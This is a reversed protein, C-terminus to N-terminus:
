LLNKGAAMPTPTKPLYFKLPSSASTLDALTINALASYLIDSVMQWQTRLQCDSEIQCIHQGRHSCETVAWPGELAQVVQAVSIQDPSLSLRYGGQAGRVSQLLGAKTLLKLIKSVTPLPVHTLQVIANAALLTDPQKALAGLVLTSYDTLKSIRFMYEEGKLSQSQQLPAAPM